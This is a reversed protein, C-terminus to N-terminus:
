SEKEKQKKFYRRLPKWYFENWGDALEEEQEEPVNVHVMTVETGEPVERFTLEFRSPPYGEPWDTTQWQQVLRKGPEFELFKGFIYGDWATFKSGVKAKGAAQSGTFESHKEPDVFADYVERPSAPVTVKQNITTVNLKLFSV